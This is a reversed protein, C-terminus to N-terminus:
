PRKRPSKALGGKVMDARARLPDLKALRRKASAMMEEIRTNREEREDAARQGNKPPRPPM